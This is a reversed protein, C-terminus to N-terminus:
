WMKEPAQIGLLNLGQQLTKGVAQTL